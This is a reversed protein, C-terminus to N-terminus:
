ANLVDNLTIVLTDEGYSVPADDEYISYNPGCCECNVARPNEGFYAYFMDEATEVDPAEIYIAEYPTNQHGGSHMDHFKVFM